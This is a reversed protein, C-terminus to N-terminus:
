ESTTPKSTCCSCTHGLLLLLMLLLLSIVRVVACDQGVDGGSSTWCWARWRWCAWCGCVDLRLGDASSSCRGLLLLELEDAPRDQVNDCKVLKCRDAEAM